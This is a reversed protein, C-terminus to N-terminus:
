IESEQKKGEPESKEIFECAYTAVFSWRYRKHTESGVGIKNYKPNLINVRHGRSRVGDDILLNLLARHGSTPGYSINEGMCVQWQGHSNLRKSSANRPGHGTKGNKSQSKAHDVAAQSMGPSPFLIGMPKTKLLVKHLQLVATKGERTIIPTEGPYVLMKGQYYNSIEKVYLDAFKAPNTRVMNTALIMNKEEDNLFPANAGTNLYNVDWGQLKCYEAYESNSMMGATQSSADHIPFIFLAITMFVVFRLISFHMESIKMFMYSM